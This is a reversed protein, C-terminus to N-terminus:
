HLKHLTRKSEAESKLNLDKATRKLPKKSTLNKQLKPTMITQISNIMRNEKNKVMKKVGKNSNNIETFM